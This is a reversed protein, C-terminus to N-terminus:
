RKGLVSRLAQELDPEVFAFGAEQLRTPLVRAGTLLIEEAMEGFLLRAQFAPMPLLTPRRLVKGLVKTFERNSVPKPAVLNIPGALEQKEILFDFIELVDRMSIWSMFQAGSGIVGGLGLKFPLLMRTLAGGNKSLVIGFRAHVTRIGAAEAAATSSEWQRSIEALFGSGTASSEDVPADDRPGYFGIASASIFLKPQQERQALAQSLIHTCNVRTELLQKKRAASWRRDAVGPGALNIVVDINVSDDLYITGQDPQWNFPQASHKRLLPIVRHGAHQFHETLAQGILGSAGAILINM